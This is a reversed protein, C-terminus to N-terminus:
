WLFDHEYQVQRDVMCTVKTHKVEPFLSRSLTEQDAIGTHEKVNNSMIGGFMGAPIGHSSEQQERRLFEASSTLHQDSFRFIEGDEEWNFPDLISTYMELRLEM